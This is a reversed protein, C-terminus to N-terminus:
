LAELVPRGADVIDGGNDVLGRRRLSDLAACYAEWTMGWRDLHWREGVERCRARRRAEVLVLMEDGSLPRGVRLWGTRTLWSVGPGRVADGRRWLRVLARQIRRPPLRAGSDLRALVRLVTVEDARRRAHALYLLAASAGASLLALWPFRASM